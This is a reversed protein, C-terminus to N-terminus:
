IVKSGWKRIVRYAGNTLLWVTWNEHDDLRKQRFLLLKVTRVFHGFIVGLHGSKRVARYAKTFSWVSWSEYDDLRNQLRSYAQGNSCFPPFHSRSSRQGGNGSWGIHVMPWCDYQGIKMIMWDKRDSSFCSSRGFLIVLFSGSIVRNGSRGIHVM